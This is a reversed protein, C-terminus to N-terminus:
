YLAVKIHRPVAISLTYVVMSVFVYLAAAQTRSVIGISAPVTNIKM